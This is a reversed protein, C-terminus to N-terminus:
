RFIFCFLSFFPFAFEEKENVNRFFNLNWTKSMKWELAFSVSCGPPDVTREFDLLSLIKIRKGEFEYPPDIVHNKM